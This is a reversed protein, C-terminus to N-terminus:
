ARGRKILKRKKPKNIAAPIEIPEPFEMSEKWFEVRCNPCRVNMHGRMKVRKDIAPCFHMFQTSTNPIKYKTMRIFAIPRTADLVLTKTVKYEVDDISFSDNISLSNEFERHVPREMKKDYYDYLTYNYKM